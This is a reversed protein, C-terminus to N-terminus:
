CKNRELRIFLYTFLALGGGWLAVLASFQSLDTM